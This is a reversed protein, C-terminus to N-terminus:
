AGTPRDCYCGFQFRKYLWRLSRSHIFFTELQACVETLTLALATAEHGLGHKAQVFLATDCAADHEAPDGSETRPVVKSSVLGQAQRLVGGDRDDRDVGLGDDFAQEFGHQGDVFAAQDAQLARAQQVIVDVADFQGVFIM